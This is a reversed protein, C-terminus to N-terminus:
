PKLVAKEMLVAYSYGSGFDKNIAILGEFTVVDGKKPVEQTTVLLDHNKNKASGSGDQLHVWNKGMIQASIKVVKGRVLLKKGDLDKTSKFIEAVTKGGKAKKVKIPASTEADPKKHKKSTEKKGVVGNSFIINKFTKKLTKSEFNNMTMGSYIEVVAGKKVENKPIAAWVFGKGKQIKLYTYGGAHMVALTKGKITNVAPRAAGQKNAGQKKMGPMAMALNAVSSLVAFILVIKM